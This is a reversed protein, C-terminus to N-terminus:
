GSATGSCPPRMTGRRGSGTSSTPWPTARSSPTSTRRRPPAPRSPRQPIQSCSSGRPTRPRRIGWNNGWLLNGTVAVDKTFSNAAEANIVVGGEFSSTVRNGSVRTDTVTSGPLDAAVVIGGVDPGNQGIQSVSSQTGLITNRAILLDSLSGGLNQTAAVIACGNDNAWELNGTVSDDTSPTLPASGNQTITGPDHPGNDMVGIGGRGNDYLTNGSVTAHSVGFLSIAFAQGVLSHVGSGPLPPASADVTGFANGTITSGVIEVYSTDQAFIGQFSAGAVRVSRITVHSVGAGV